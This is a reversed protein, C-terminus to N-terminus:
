NKGGRIKERERMSILFENAKEKHLGEVSAKKKLASIIINRGLNIDKGVAKFVIGFQLSYCTPM